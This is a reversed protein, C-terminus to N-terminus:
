TRAQRMTRVNDQRAKAEPATADFMAGLADALAADVNPLLHGYINITTRIDEHGLREKVVHLNPTLALSLSAATHRLDHWRLAHLEAPLACKVAPRFVRRYFNGHRVPHGDPSTFLLRDADAADQTWGLEGARIVPYGHHAAPPSLTAADLAETLTALLTPDLGLTRSAHTKTPGAM